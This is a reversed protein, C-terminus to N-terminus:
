GAAARFLPARLALVEEMAGRFGALEAEGVALSLAIMGRRAVYFGRELLDLFLLEKLAQNGAAVEAANRPPAAAVHLAMMSGRGTVQLPLDHRAAIGNLAARLADGRANHAVAVAPTYIDGLAAIGASMTLTNNNFTGAHPVADARRPDFMAMLSARGGFAGFSMGGGVYKGLTTLDPMARAADQLGGPALRSTMVEDFVLVAGTEDALARLGELFGPAAPICGGGGLMPELIIAALDAANERALAQAAGLDNFSAVATRHPVNVGIAGPAAGRPFGLLSGHYGGEFGLITRRGTAITACALAMLNAETGSNTFRVREISPFRDCVLRAFRAEFANHATLNVGGDLARLVAARIAPHSHGFLGATYEGALNVYSLGDADEIRCGEGRQVTFPFPGHFLVSRTNGGPMVEAADLHRALSNPRRRAYTERAEPLADDLTANRGHM